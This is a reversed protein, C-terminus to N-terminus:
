ITCITGFRTVCSLHLVLSNRFIDFKLLKRYVCNSMNLNPWFPVNSLRWNQESTSKKLYSKKEPLFLTIESVQILILSLSCLFFHRSFLIIFSNWMKTYSQNVVVLTPSSENYLLIQIRIKLSQINVFYYM